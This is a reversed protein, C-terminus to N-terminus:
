SKARKWTELLKQGNSLSGTQTMKEGEIKIEFTQEKGIIKQLEPSGLQGFEVREKYTNKELTYTGGALAVPLKSEKLYTVWIFHDQNIVKIQLLRPENDFSKEWTGELPNRGKDKDDGMSRSVGLAAAAAVVIAMASIAANRM